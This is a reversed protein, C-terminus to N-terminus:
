LQENDSRPAGFEPATQEYHNMLTSTLLLLFATPMLNLVVLQLLVFQPLFHRLRLAAAPLKPAADPLKLAAAPFTKQLKLEHNSPLVYGFRM